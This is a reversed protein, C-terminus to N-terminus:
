VVSKRDSCTRSSPVEIGAGTNGKINIRDVGSPINIIQEREYDIEALDSAIIEGGDQIVSGTGITTKAGNEYCILRGGSTVLVSKGNFAEGINGFKNLTVTGSSIVLNGGSVAKCNSGGSIAIQGDSFALRSSDNLKVADVNNAVIRNNSGILKVNVNGNLIILQCNDPSVANMDLDQFSLDINGTVDITITRSGLAHGSITYGRSNTGFGGTVNNADGYGVEDDSIYINGESIDLETQGNVAHVDKPVFVALFFAALFLKLFLKKTKM